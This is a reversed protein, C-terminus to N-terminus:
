PATTLFVDWAWRGVQAGRADRVIARYRFRNGHEDTRRSERYRLEITRIESRALNQLESSESIGNHNRDQWLRLQAFISDRADIQNDNNGGNQPSDYVALALFGNREEGTLSMPQPTIDGFLEEGNDITGNGNRDLTLWADDSNASTWAIREPFGNSDLDFLVGNQYNTLSFGNGDIDIVIPSTLCGVDDFDVDGDFDNDIGDRCNGCDRREGYQCTTPPPTPNPTPTPTPTTPPPLYELFYSGIEGTTGPTGQPGRDGSGLSTSTNGENGDHASSSPCNDNGLARGRMGGSGSIGPTGGIGGEGPLGPTGGSFRADIPAPNPFNYPVYINITGGRGGPGGPGGTGGIGGKGGRGGNKGDGGTGAGGQQCSCDQGNGGAGGDQANDGPAGFGGTGGTGGRGGKSEFVYGANFPATINFMITGGQGGNDGIGGIGANEPGTAGNNGPFGNLGNPSNLDCRGNAGNVPSPPIYGSYYGPSGMVGQAGQGGNCNPTQPPCPVPDNLEPKSTSPKRDKLQKQRALWENYGQGNVSVTLVSNEAKKVFQFKEYVRQNIAPLSQKSLGQEQMTDEFTKEIHFSERIPFVYINKGVGKIINQRGEFVITNALIVLDGTLEVKEPLIITDAIQVGEMKNEARLTTQLENIQNFSSSLQERWDSSLLVEPEFPVGKELLLKRAPEFMDKQEQITPNRKSPISSTPTSYPPNKTQMFSESSVFVQFLIVVGCLLVTMKKMKQEKRSKQANFKKNEM